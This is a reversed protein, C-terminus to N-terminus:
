AMSLRAIERAVLRLKRQIDAPREDAFPHRLQLLLYRQLMQLCFISM